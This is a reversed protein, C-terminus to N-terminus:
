EGMDDYFKGIIEEPSCEQSIDELLKLMRDELEMIKKQIERTQVLAKDLEQCLRKANEIVDGRM